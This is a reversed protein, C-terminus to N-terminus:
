LKTLFSYAYSSNYILIVWVHVGVKRLPSL